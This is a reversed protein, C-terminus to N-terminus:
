PATVFWYHLTSLCELSRGGADLGEKAGFKCALEAIQQLRWLINVNRMTTGRAYMDM